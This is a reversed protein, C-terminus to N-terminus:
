LDRTHLNHAASGSCTLPIIWLGRGCRVIVAVLPGDGSHVHDPCARRARAGCRGTTSKGTSRAALVLSIRGHGAQIRARDQEDDGAGAAGSGAQSYLAGREVEAHLFEANGADAVIEEGRLSSAIVGVGGWLHECRYM